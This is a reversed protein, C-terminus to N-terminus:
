DYKQSRSLMSCSLKSHTGEFQVNRAKQINSIKDTKNQIIKNEGGSNVAAVVLLYFIFVPRTLRGILGTLFGTLIEKKAVLICRFVMWFNCVSM